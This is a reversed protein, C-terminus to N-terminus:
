PAIRIVQAMVAVGVRAIKTLYAFDITAITDGAHDRHPNFLPM